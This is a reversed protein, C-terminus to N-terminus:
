IDSLLLDGLVGHLRENDSGALWCSFFHVESIENIQTVYFPVCLWNLSSPLAPNKLLSRLFDQTKLESSIEAYGSSPQLISRRFWLFCDGWQKSMTQAIVKGLSHYTKFGLCQWIEFVVETVERSPKTVRCQSFLCKWSSEDTSKIM